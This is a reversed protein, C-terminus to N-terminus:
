LVIPLNFLEVIGRLVLYIGSSGAAVHLMGSNLIRQWANPVPGRRLRYRELLERGAKIGSAVQKETPPKTTVLFQVLSGLPRFLFVMALFALLIKIQQDEIGPIELSFIGMFVGAGVALNTGCRPHVRPMRKVIEPKLEEGREIAHVVMHEAAHTGSIPLLRMSLLFLVVAIAGSAASWAPIQAAILAAAQDAVLFMTFLMAGSAMLAWSGAGGHITGTTLYVGFPTAMGGISPPTPFNPRQITLDSPGVVGLLRDDQVVLFAIQHETNMRRLADAGSASPPITPPEIQARTCPESLAVGKGLAEALSAESVAGILAESSVIPIFPYATDRLLSAARDLSDEPNLMETSRM